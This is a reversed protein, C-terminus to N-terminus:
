SRATGDFWGRATGTLLLGVGVTPGAAFFATFAILSGGPGTGPLDDVLALLRVTWYLALLIQVAHAAILALRVRRTRRTLALVGSVVLAVASVVQVVALASGETALARVTASSYAGNVGTTALDAVSAFFWVYLSAILVVGAQVFALVASTIVPGPRQPAPAPTWPQPGQPWPAYPPGYGYPQPPWGYPGYPTTPPPGAYPVGPQTPTAPDAWPNRGPDGYGSGGDTV